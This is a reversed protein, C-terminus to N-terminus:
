FTLHLFQLLRFHLSLFIVCPYTAIFIDICFLLYNSSVVQLLLDFSIPLLFSVNYIGLCAWVFCVFCFTEFYRFFIRGELQHLICSSLEVIPQLLLLVIKFYFITVSMVFGIVSHIFVIPFYNCPISSLRNASLSWSNSRGLSFFGSNSFEVVIHIITKFFGRRDIPSLSM